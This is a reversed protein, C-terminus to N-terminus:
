PLLIKKAAESAVDVLIDRVASATGTGVRKLIKVIRNSAAQAQPTDKTIEDVSQRFVELDKEEIGEDALLDTAAQKRRETWPFPAGCHLCFAAPRFRGSGMRPVYYVGQIANGCKPCRDITAEGCDPCFPKNHVPRTSMAENAVHGNPCIQAVDYRGTM